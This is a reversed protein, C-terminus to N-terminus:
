YNRVMKIIDPIKADTRIGTGSFHTRTIKFNNERFKRFLENMAPATINLKKCIRHLDYYPIQIEQEESVQPIIKLAKKKTNFVGAEIERNLNECFETDSFNGAWVPGATALREGCVCKEELADLSRYSRNLCSFCHQIYRINRLNENVYKNGMQVKLYARFYHHTCHSFLPMIGINYKLANRAVFGILIRLGSENFYEARLSLSDYKRRCAKPYTGCLAATDTATVALTGNNKISRLACDMFQVPPGFPDVDIFDFTERSLVNQAYDNVARVRFDPINNLSINKKILEYASPNVDNAVVEGTGTENAIRVGRAGSGSLLDCFKEPKLVRVVAVSLDRSFEMEPNYFVPNKKLLKEEVPVLLKTTGEVIESLNPIM